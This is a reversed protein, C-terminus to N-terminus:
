QIKIPKSNHKYRIIQKIRKHKRSEKGKNTNGRNKGNVM